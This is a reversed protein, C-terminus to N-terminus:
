DGNSGAGTMLRRWLDSEFAPDRLQEFARWHPYGSRFLAPPMCSDKAAYIRGGCAAVIAHLEAFLRQTRLGREPFDLALTLGPAPFSLLGVSPRSGFRKLVALFSAEGSEACRQLLERLPPLGAADPILCQFQRFGRRGYMRNWDAIADLPHFFPEVHQLGHRGAAPVRHFYLANFAGVTLRNLPSLPPAFPVALRLRAASAHPPAADAAAPDARMLLGRGLARGGATADVWAVVYAHAAEAARTRADFEDLSGFRETTVTLWASPVPQLALRARTVLGTLGMGGVTAAFLADAPEVWRRSGDSRALEFGLLHHGFSGARHHNKGHVDNAIAGGVSVFQTGPVVPLALGRAAALRAIAGLTVGAECEVWAGGAASPDPQLAVFRDLRRCDLLLGGDNFCQDGYSRGHGYPLLTTGEQPPRLPADRHALALVGAPKPMRLRGWSGYSAKMM